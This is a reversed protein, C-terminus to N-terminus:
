ENLNITKALTKFAPNGVYVGPETISRIVVSNSGVTVGNCISIKDNIVVGAGIFCEDGIAVRGCLISGVSIHNHSGIKVEHEIICGTNIINNDGFQVNSNIFVRGFIFNAKGFSVSEEIFSTSHLINQTIIQSSFKEYLVKRKFNNGYSLIVKGSFDYSPILGLIEISNIIEKQDPNYSEDYIGAIPISQNRLLSILSRTHGGAGFIYTRDGMMKIEQM